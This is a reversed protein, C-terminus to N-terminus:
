TKESNFSDVERREYDHIVESIPVTEFLDTGKSRKFNNLLATHIRVLYKKVVELKQQNTLKTGAAVRAQVVAHGLWNDSTVFKKVSKLSPCQKKLSSFRFFSNYSLATRIM